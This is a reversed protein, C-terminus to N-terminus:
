PHWAGAPRPALVSGAGTLQYLGPRNPSPIWYVSPKPRAVGSWRSGGPWFPVLDSPQVIIGIPGPGSLYYAQLAQNDLPDVLSPPPVWNSPLSGGPGDFAISGAELYQGNVYLDALLLYRAM